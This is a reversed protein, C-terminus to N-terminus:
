LSFSFNARRSIFPLGSLEKKDWSSKTLIFVKLIESTHSSRCLCMSLLPASSRMRTAGRTCRAEYAAWSTRRYEFYEFRSAQERSIHLVQVTDLLMFTHQVGCIAL